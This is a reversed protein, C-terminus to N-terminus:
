VGTCIPAVYMTKPDIFRNVDGEIVRQRKQCSKTNQVWIYLCPATPKELGGAQPVPHAKRRNLTLASNINQCSLNSLQLTM